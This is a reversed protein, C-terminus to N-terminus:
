NWQWEMEDKLIFYGGAYRRKMYEDDTTAIDKCFECMNM